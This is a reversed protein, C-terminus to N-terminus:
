SKAAKKTTPKNTTPIPESIASEKLAKEYAAKESAPRESALGKIAAIDLRLNQNGKKAKSIVEARASAGVGIHTLFRRLESAQDITQVINGEKDKIPKGEKNLKDKYTDVYDLNTLLGQTEEKAAKLDMLDSYNMEQEKQSLM